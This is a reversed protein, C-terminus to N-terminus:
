SKYQEEFRKAEEEGVLKLMFGEEGKGVVAMNRAGTDLKAAFDQVDLENIVLGKGEPDLKHVLLMCLRQLGKGTHLELQRLIPSQPNRIEAPNHDFKM